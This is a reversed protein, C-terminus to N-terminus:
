TLSNVETIIGNVVSILMPGETNITGTWGTPLDGLTAIQNAPVTPDNLFEGDSGGNIVVSDSSYVWL